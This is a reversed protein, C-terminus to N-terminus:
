LQTREGTIANVVTAGEGFNARMEFLEEESLPATAKRYGEIFKATDKERAETSRQLTGADVLGIREWQWVCDAPPVSKNVKWRLTGDANDIFTEAFEEMAKENDPEWLLQGDHQRFHKMWHHKM